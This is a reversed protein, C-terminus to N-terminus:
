TRSLFLPGIVMVPGLSALRGSSAKMALTLDCVGKVLLTRQAPFPGWFREFQCLDSVTEFWQTPTAFSRPGSHRGRLQGNAAERNPGSVSTISLRRLDPLTRPTRIQQARTFTEIILM